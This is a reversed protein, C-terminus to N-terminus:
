MTLHVTCFPLLAKMIKVHVGAPFLSKPLGLLLNSSLILISNLSIPTLILFQSSEARSLIPNSLGQLHPKSGGPKM